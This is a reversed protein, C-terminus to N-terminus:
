MKWINHVAFPQQLSYRIHGRPCAATKVKIFYINKRAPSFIRQINGSESGVMEEIFIKSTYHFIENCCCKVSVKIASLLNVVLLITQISLLHYQKLPKPAAYDLPVDYM